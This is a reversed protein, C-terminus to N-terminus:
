ITVLKISEGGGTELAIGYQTSLQLEIAAVEDQSLVRDYVLVAAVHWDSPETNNGGNGACNICLASPANDACGLESFGRTSRVTGQAKYLAPQMVSLLWRDGYLLDSTSNAPYQATLWTGCVGAVGANGTRHGSFWDQNLSALIRQRTRGQPDYRAIHFVTYQQPLLTTPWQVVSTTNGAVYSMGAALGAAQSTIVGGSGSITAHNGNGSLDDWQTASTVKLSAATYYGIAGKYPDGFYRQFAGTDHAM